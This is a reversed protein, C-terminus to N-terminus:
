MLDFGPRETGSGWRQWWWRPLTRVGQSPLATLWLLFLASTAFRGGSKLRFMLQRSVKPMASSRQPGWCERRGFPPVSDLDRNGM